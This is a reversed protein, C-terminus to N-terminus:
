VLVRASTGKPCTRNVLDVGSLLVVGPKKGVSFSGLMGDVQLARAGNITAWQLLAALPVPYQGQVAVLEDAISLSYNSALSDTGLAVHGSYEMFLSFDPFQRGIYYNSRPCLVFFANEKGLLRVAYALDDKSAHTNHVLLVNNKKSIFPLVTELPSSGTADFWDYSFGTQQMREAFAGTKAAFLENEGETEQNHVSQISAHEAAHTAISRFLDADLSYPAHPTISLPLSDAHRAYLNSAAVFRESGQDGMGFVELFTHYHIPSQMKASFTDSTNSIDGVAVIGSKQMYRDALDIANRIEAEEASRMQVIQRVFHSLGEGETTKRHLHSLELHCHANVFGPCLIGNYFELGAVERLKGKTDCVGIITGDDAIEIYSNELFEGTESLVLNAGIKRM